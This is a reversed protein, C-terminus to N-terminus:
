DWGSRKKGAVAAAPGRPRVAADLSVSLPRRRWEGAPCRRGAGVQGLAGQWHQAARHTGASGIVEVRIRVHSVATTTRKHFGGHGALVARPTGMDRPPSASPPPTPSPNAWCISWLAASARTKSVRLPLCFFDEHQEIDLYTRTWCRSIRTCAKQLATLPPRTKFPTASRVLSVPLRRASALGGDSTPTSCCTLNSRWGATGLVGGM